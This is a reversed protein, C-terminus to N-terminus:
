LLDKVVEEGIGELRSGLASQDPNLRELGILEDLDMYDVISRPKIRDFALTCEVPEPPSTRGPVFACAEAKRDHVL